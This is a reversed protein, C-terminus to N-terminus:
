TFGTSSFLNSDGVNFTLVNLLLYTHVLFLLSLHSLILVFLRHPIRSGTGCTGTITPWALRGGYAPLIDHFTYRACKSVAEITRLQDPVVIVDM